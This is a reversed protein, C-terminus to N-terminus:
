TLECTGNNVNWIKITHDSSGSVLRDDSLHVLSDVYGTHGFLTRECTLNNINWIKITHDESGSALRGGSM